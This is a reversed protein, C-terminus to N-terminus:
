APYALRWGQASRVVVAPQLGYPDPALGREFDMLEVWDCRFQLVVYDQALPGQPWFSEWFERWYYQRSEARADFTFQGSLTAYAPGSPAQVLVLARPNARLEDAKRSRAHTGFYLTLDEDPKFHQVLRASSGTPTATVIWSFDAADLLRKADALVSEVTIQEVAIREMRNRLKRDIEMADGSGLVTWM